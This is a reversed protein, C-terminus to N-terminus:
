FGGQLTVMAGEASARVSVAAGSAKKDRESGGGPLGATFFLIAGGALAAGGAIMAVTSGTASAKAQDELEIARATCGVRSPCEAKSDGHKGSADMGLAAGIGIGVIGLGGVILGGTHRGTWGGSGPQSAVVGGSGVPAVQPEETLTPITVTITAAESAHAITEWRRRGPAAVSIAHAGGDVPLSTGFMAAGLPRGDVKIELGQTAAVEKPVVVIMRPLKLKLSEARARAVKEREPMKAAAAEDAIQTFLAWASAIRLSSEYCIALRYKVGMGPDLRNSEELKPCAEMYRGAEFLKMGEDFLARAAAANPGDFDDARAASGAGCVILAAAM